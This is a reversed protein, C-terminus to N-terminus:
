NEHAIGRLTKHQDLREFYLTIKNLAEEIGCEVDFSVIAKKELQKQVRFGIKKCIICRCDSLKSVQPIEGGMNGCGHSKCGAGTGCSSKDGCNNDQESAQTDLVKRIETQIYSGDEKVEYIIFEGAGGFTLDINQGDSSAVAIKYAMM